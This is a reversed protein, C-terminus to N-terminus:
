EGPEVGIAAIVKAKAEELLERMDAELNLRLLPETNSKRVNCWWNPFRITVGDLHSIQAGRFTEELRRIAGDKDELWIYPDTDTTPMSTMPTSQALAPAAALITSAILLTRLIM